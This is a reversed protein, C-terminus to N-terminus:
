DLSVDCRHGWSYRLRATKENPASESGIKVLWRSADHEVITVRTGPLEEDAFLSADCNTDGNVQWVLHGRWDRVFREPSQDDRPEGRLNRIAPSNLRYVFEPEETANPRRDAIDIAIRSQWTRSARIKGVSKSADQTGHSVRFSASFHHAGVQGVALAVVADGQEQFHIEQFTPSVRPSSGDSLPETFATAFVQWPPPGLDIAHVWRDDAWRFRLRFDRTVISREDDSEEITVESM